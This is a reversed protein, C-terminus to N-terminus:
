IDEDTLTPADCARWCAGLKAARSLHRAEAEHHEHRRRRTGQVLALVMWVHAFTSIKSWSSSPVEM